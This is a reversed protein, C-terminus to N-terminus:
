TNYLFRERERLNKFIHAEREREGSGSQAGLLRPRLMMIVPKIVLKTRQTPGLETPSVHKRSASVNYKPPLVCRFHRM